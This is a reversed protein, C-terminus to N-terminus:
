KALLPAATELVDLVSLIGVLEGDDVVPLAGIKLDVLLKCAEDMGSDSSVSRIKQTMFWDVSGSAARPDVEGLDLHGADPGLAMKVDRDTIIGVVKGREVVPLHRIGYRVMLHIADGLNEDADLTKPNATMVDRVLM